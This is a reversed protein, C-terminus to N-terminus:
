DCIHFYKKNEDIKAKGFSVEIRTALASYVDARANCEIQFDRSANKLKMCRRAQESTQRMDELIPRLIPAAVKWSLRKIWSELFAKM